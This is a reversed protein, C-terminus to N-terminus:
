YAYATIPNVAHSVYCDDVAAYVNSQHIRDTAKKQISKVQGSKKLENLRGSVSNANLGTKAIIEPLTMPKQTLADHIIKQTPSM